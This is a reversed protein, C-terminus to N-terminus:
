VHNQEVMRAIDDCLRWKAINLSPTEQPGRSQDPRLKNSKTEELVIMPRATLWEGQNQMIEIRETCETSLYSRMRCGCVSAVM